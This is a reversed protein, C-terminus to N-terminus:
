SAMPPEARAASSLRGEAQGFLAFHVLPNTGAQAVDPYSRLYFETSFDPGPDRGEAAGHHLYHEAPSLGADAVDPYEGLYWTGDFYPSQEIAEIARWEEQNGRRGAELVFRAIRGRLGGPMMRGPQQSAWYGSSLQAALRRAFADRADRVKPLLSAQELWAEQKQRVQALERRCSDLDAQLKEMDAAAPAVADRAARDAGEGNDWQTSREQM